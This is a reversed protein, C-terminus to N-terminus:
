QVPVMLQEQIFKSRTINEVIKTNLVNNPIQTTKVNDVRKFVTFLLSIHEVIFKKDDIDM